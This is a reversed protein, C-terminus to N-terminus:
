ETWFFHSAIRDAYRKGERTLTIKKGEINLMSALWTEELLKTFHNFFTTGFNRQIRELNIGWMTRLGTMVYENYQDMQSLMETEIPITGSQIAKIYQMNNAATWSRLQGNFSHASPGIGLYPEGKWYNTNHVAHHGPKAFNSIEYHDMGLDAVADMLMDFQQIMLNENLPPMTGKKVRHHFVTKEEITLGYASLHPVKYYALLKLHENWKELSSTPAGYILDITYNEFGAKPLMELVEKSQIASHSRNMFVLDDEFFSQIGLSLRNIGFRKLTELYILDIDDPNCEFTVEGLTTTNFNKHVSDIIKALQAENLVSPTGGGFYVTSLPASELFNSRLEIDKCLADTLEDLYGLQTSFHFNCYHCAKRCFPIHIYLGSM